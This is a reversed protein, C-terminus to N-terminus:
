GVAILRRGGCPMRALEERGLDETVLPHLRSPGKLQASFDNDKIPVRWVLPGLVVALMMLALVALGVVALWHRRFRRWTERAPSVYGARRGSGPAEATPSALTLGAM